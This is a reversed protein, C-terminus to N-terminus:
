RAEKNIRLIESVIRHLLDKDLITFREDLWTSIHDYEDSEPVTVTVCTRPSIDLRVVLIDGFGWQASLESCRTILYAGNYSNIMSVLQERQHTIM